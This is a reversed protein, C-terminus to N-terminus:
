WLKKPAQQGLAARQAMREYRAMRKGQRYCRRCYYRGTLKKACSRHIEEKCIDCRAVPPSLPKGCTPCEM